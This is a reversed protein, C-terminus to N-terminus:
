KIGPRREMAGRVGLTEPHRAIKDAFVRADRILPKIEQTLDDVREAARSLNNYLEPNNLLQGVTGDPNNIQESFRMVQGVLVDINEVTHDLRTIITAGREGLPKTFAAVSSLNQDVLDLTQRMHGVAERTDNLLVPLEAVSRKLQNRIEPNGIIDNANDMTSKIVVLSEDMRQLISSIRGDNKELLAGLQQAVRRIDGSTQSVSNLADSMNGQMDTLVQIPDPAAVGKVTAGDEVPPGLVDAALFFQLAADGLLSSNIRCVENQFLRRRKDIKGTVLVGGQDLLEVESVRGILVGSKRIPTDKTVGPAQTFRIYIYYSGYPTTPMDGFMLVLIVTSIITAFVMVGVRFQMIRDNM